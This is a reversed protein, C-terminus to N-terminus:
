YVEAEEKLRFEELLKKELEMKIKTKKEMEIANKKEEVMMQQSKISEFKNRNNNQEEIKLYRALENNYQKQLKLLKAEEAIQKLKDERKNQINERLDNKIRSNQEKKYLLERERIQKAEDKQRM